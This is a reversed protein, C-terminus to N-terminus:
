FSRVARVYFQGGKTKKTKAGDQFSQSWAKTSDVESSSWYFFDNIGTLVNKHIYLQNLEAKSPL